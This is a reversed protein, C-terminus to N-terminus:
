NHKLIVGLTRGDRPKASSLTVHRSRKVREAEQQEPSLDTIHIKGDTFFNSRIAELETVVRILCESPLLYGAVVGLEGLYRETNDSYGKAGSEDLVFIVEKM